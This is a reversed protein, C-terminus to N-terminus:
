EPTPHNGGEKPIPRASGPAGPRMVAPGAQSIAVEIKELINRMTPRLSLDSEWCSSCIEWWADTLRSQTSELTPRHPLTRLMLRAFIQASSCCDHFPPARTFLELTTMGFAWVDSATSPRSNVLLEPATWQPSCASITEVAMNFTSTNVITQGFDTLLARRDSSVMVNIGKLDGHVIPGPPSTYSHLYCLGSAIDKILPRPDNEANRVYTHANGLPMWESIISLTSDFETSIGLMRVVNEHRLQSWVQVERFIRKLEADGEWMANHFTKIAVETGDPVLTGHYVTAKRGRFARRGMTRDIRGDLIIGYASVRDRLEGLVPSLGMVSRHHTSDPFYRDQEVPPTRQPLSTVGTPYLAAKVTKVIDRMVPRSSPDNGWCSTCIEWWTDTMRFHTSEAVPRRPLKGWLLRGRVDKSSPSDSFPISRTFLELVTMGFAWVDSAVSAHGEDLVEPARWRLSIGSEPDGFASVNLTSLGIDTLLARHDSSVMVDFGKPGGHVVPGLEHGHLYYLGNALDELLPRPDHEINQVYDHANGLTMWESIISLTSDFETSIGLMRVVNEHRLKSWVHVERFIRKLETDSEWMANRFTKIAVETGDPVLTGHYVTAKGGRFPRRGMTRDIRGNLIIGYASVRDRLEGLVPSLGMVSRHHSSDPFYRDQEVPPTRQPLSTVGTPYLAAKVTKVIDRMVPRSSPDNGWCSTCIEWWTDTMRFHTSEADPRRPLKGTILRVLVDTPSPSDSFPVSRTFLELVTMGFAWVDSAMSAYGEDLVEPATWHFSFGSQTDITISFTSINLTSLGIDTLLARHDSSVMVNYGKPDGHIIPGLEHGHLYYLGNALDKLLPRPDHETNQVYDHANGLPMWDSIISVTFDFETSFGLMPVINEHRLKSWTHVERFFHEFNDDTSSLSSRFTKIAVERGDPILTGHRIVAAGGHLHPRDLSRRVCGDLRTSYRSARDSLQHLVSDM